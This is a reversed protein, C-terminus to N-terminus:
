EPKGLCSAFIICLWKVYRMISGLKLNYPSWWTWNQWKLTDYIQSPCPNHHATCDVMIYNYPEQVQVVSTTHPHNTCVHLHSPLFLWAHGLYWCGQASIVPTIHPFPFMFPLPSPLSPQQPPSALFFFLKPKRTLHPLSPLCSSSFHPLSPFSLM